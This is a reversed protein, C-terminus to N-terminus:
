RTTPAAASRVSVVPAAGVVSRLVADPRAPDTTAAIGVVTVGRHVLCGGGDFTAGSRVEREGGGFEISLPSGVMAAVEGEKGDRVLFDGVVTGGEEVWSRQMFALPTGDHMDLLPLRDALRYGIFQERAYQAGHSEVMEGLRGFEVVARM